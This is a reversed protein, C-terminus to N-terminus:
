DGDCMEWKTFQEWTEVAHRMLPNRLAMTRSPVLLNKRETEAYLDDGIIAEYGAQRAKDRNEDQALVRWARDPNTSTVAYYTAM